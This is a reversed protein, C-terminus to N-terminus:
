TNLIFWDTASIFTGEASFESSDFDRAKFGPTPWFIAMCAEGEALFKKRTWIQIKETWESENEWIRERGKLQM